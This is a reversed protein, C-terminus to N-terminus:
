VREGCTSEAEDPAEKALEFFVDEMNKEKLEAVLNAPTSMAKIKGRHLFIVEDCLEEVEYMNHSTYLITVGDNVTIDKLQRRVIKASIPDLSATPEDLLIFAPSNILAKCLNLRTLQGSSLQGTKKNKMGILEFKTLLYDARPEWNKVNYLKSFFYLNQKLTLNYPLSVFASSFNCHALIEQRYKTIDKGFINIRGATPTVLGLILYITTTKGAGNPGLLGTIRGPKLTFSIDDVALCEKFRKSLNEVQLIDM